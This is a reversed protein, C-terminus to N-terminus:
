NRTPACAQLADQLTRLLGDVGFPKPLFARAGAELVAQETAGRAHASQVVVALRDLRGEEGLRQLVAWGDVDPMRLDLLMGDPEDEAVADLAARGDPAEVVDYGNSELALRLFLRMDPEDDVVLLRTV